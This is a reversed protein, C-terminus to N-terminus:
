LKLEKKLEEIWDFYMINLGKKGIHKQIENIGERVKKKDLCHKQIDKLEVSYREKGNPYKEYLVKKLSPFDDGFTGFIM